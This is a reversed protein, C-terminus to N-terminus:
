ENDLVSPPENTLSDEKDERLRMRHMLPRKRFDSVKSLQHDMAPPQIQAHYRGYRDAM